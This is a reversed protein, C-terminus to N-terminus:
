NNSHLIIWDMTYTSNHKGSAIGLGLEIIDEDECKIIVNNIELFVLM